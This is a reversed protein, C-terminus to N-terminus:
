PILMYAIGNGPDNVLIQVGSAPDNVYETFANVKQHLSGNQDQEITATNTDFIISNFGLAKLRKTTLAHDREQNLCNFFSVQNDAMPLIERNKPIFFSIFTGIRFTYPRDALQQHREVVSDRIDNYEPVTMERLAEASVKGLPYEFLNKQTDFQWLRNIFCVMISAVVLASWLYRNLADPARIVCAELAIVFGLFMGVGYWAIGNGIFVWQTYFVLTGVFLFRLWRSEPLWFYPLLLLLPFLLLLPMFTVYYGYSDLNMVERWALGVYHDIGTSFGWYRDLEETRASTKCAANNPDLKLEPPLYRVPTQPDEVPVEDKQQYFIQPAAPDAAGLMAGTSFGGARNTYANYAMWPAVAVVLAVVFFAVPMVIIPVVPEKRKMWYYVGVGLLILGTLGLILHMIDLSPADTGIRNAISSFDLPGYKNLILFELVVVGLFGPIGLVSGVLISLILLISLIATPKVGFAFGALLGAILLARKDGQPLRWEEPLGPTGFAFCFTALTALTSTMFVANDIKMDAFSFHGVMPLFYYLAAALIGGRVGFFTRGFAYVALVALLGAAWNIEMAFTTGVADWSSAPALGFLTFGISTLYEWQFQSMSPIFSGYSALLRPRNLYSGLDDWGIPFPRVVNLFNLALYSILMWGMFMLVNNWSIRVNWTRTIASRIWYVNFPYALLPVGFFLTRVVPGTLVGFISLLWLVAVWVLAGVGASFCFELVPELSRERRFGIARLVGLGVLILNFLFLLVLLLQGGARAFLSEQMCLFRMNYVKAGNQATGLESLCGRSLLSQYNAQLSALAQDSASNYVEKTPEYFRAFPMADNPNATANSLTGVSFTTAFLWVCFAFIAILTAPRFRVNLEFYGTKFGGYIVMCIVLVLWTAIYLTFPSAMLFLTSVFPVLAVSGRCLYTGIEPSTGCATDLIKVQDAKMYVLEHVPIGLYVFFTYIGWLLTAVFLSVSLITITRQTM